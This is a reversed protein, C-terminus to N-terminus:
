SPVFEPQELVHLYQMHVLNMVYQIDEMFVVRTHADDNDFLPHINSNRRFKYALCVWLFGDKDEHGFVSVYEGNNQDYLRWIYEGEDQVFGHKELADKTIKERM